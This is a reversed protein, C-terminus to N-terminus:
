IEEDDNLWDCNYVEVKEKVEENNKKIDSPVKYGKKHWEILIKDIYRIILGM